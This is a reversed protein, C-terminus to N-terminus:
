AAASPPKFLGIGAAELESLLGYFSPADASNDQAIYAALARELGSAGEEPEVLRGRAWNAYVQGVDAYAKIGCEQSLGVM